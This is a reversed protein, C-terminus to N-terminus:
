AKAPSHGCFSLAVDLLDTRPIRRPATGAACPSGIALGAWHNEWTACLASMSPWRSHAGRLLCGAPAPMLFILNAHGALFPPAVGAAREQNHVRLAHLVRVRCALLAIVRALLNRADLAVDCHVRLPQRVRHG